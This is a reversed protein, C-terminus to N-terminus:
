RREREGVFDSRRSEPGACKATCCETRTWCSKPARARGTACGFNTTGRAVTSNESASGGARAACDRDTATWRTTMTLTEMPASGGFLKELTPDGGERRLNWQGEITLVERHANLRGAETVEKPCETLGVEGPAFVVIATLPSQPNAAIAAQAQARTVLVKEHWFHFRRPIPSGDERVGVYDCQLLPYGVVPVIVREGTLTVPRARSPRLAAFEEDTPWDINPRPRKIGHATFEAWDRWPRYVDYWRKTKEVADMLQAPTAIIVSGPGSAGLVHRIANVWAEFPATAVEPIGGDIQGALATLGKVAPAQPGGQREHEDHSHGQVVVEQRIRGRGSREPGRRVRGLVPSPGGRYRRQGGSRRNAGRCHKRSGGSRSASRSMPRDLLRTM